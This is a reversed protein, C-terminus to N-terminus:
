IHFRDELRVSWRQSELHLRPRECAWSLDNSAIKLCLKVFPLICGQLKLHIGLMMTQLFYRKEFGNQTELYRYIEKLTIWRGFLHNELAFTSNTEPITYISPCFLRSCISVDTFKGLVYVSVDLCCSEWCDFHESHHGQKSFSQTM